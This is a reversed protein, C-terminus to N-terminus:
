CIPVGLQMLCDNCHWMKTVQEVRGLAWPQFCNCFGCKLVKPSFKMWCAECFFDDIDPDNWGVSQAKCDTCVGDVSGVKHNKLAEPSSASMLCNLSTQLVQGVTPRLWSDVIVHRHLSPLSVKGHKRLLEEIKRLMDVVQKGSMWLKGM